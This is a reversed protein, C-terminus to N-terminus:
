KNVSSILFQLYAQTVNWTFVAQEYGLQQQSLQTQSLLVDTTNVLGEQYRDKVIRLSETAHDVSLKQEQIKFQADALDRHTKDLEVQGQMKQLNSQEILKNRELKQSVVVNRTKNGKFINWSLQIGALYADAGFGTMRNDNLQYSAFANLKPLYGMRDSKVMMDAAEIAKQMAQFDARTAPVSNITDIKGTEEQWAEDTVSYVTGTTKGMLLSLYDSANKINSRAESLNSEITSVQVQVNLLDSRQLLGQELRNRTFFEIDKATKLAEELVDVAKYALQLQMYAKRAGFAVYEKTRQTKYGYMESQKKAARRMYMMDMNVLPQQIDVKATFDNTADPHNLKEPDFDAQTIIKQQLKFGFANLPNNTTLATYSVGVQPLFIAQTQKYNSKAIGEDITAILIEKNNLSSNEVAEDMTLRVTQQAMLSAMNSVVIIFAMILGSWNCYCHGNCKHIKIM